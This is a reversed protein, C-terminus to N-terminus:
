EPLRFDLKVTTAVEVPQGNLLYPKYHWRLVADEAAARLHRDGDIVRVYKVMGTQTVVVDMVVAGEIGQARAADPYAPVRSTILNAAMTSAPVRLVSADIMQQGARQRISSETPDAARRADAAPTQHAEQAPPTTPTPAASNDQPTVPADSAATQSPPTQEPEPTTVPAPPASEAQQGTVSNYTNRVSEVASQLWESGVETRSGAYGGAALVAVILAPIAFRSLQSPEPDRAYASLPAKIAPDDDPDSYALGRKGLTSAPRPDFVEVPAPEPLRSAAVPAVPEQPPEPIVPVDAVPAADPVLAAVVPAEVPPPAPPEVVPAVVPKPPAAEARPSAAQSRDDEIERQPANARAEAFPSMRDWKSLAESQQSDTIRIERLAPEVANATDVAGAATSAGSMEADIQALQARLERTSQELRALADGISRRKEVAENTPAHHSAFPRSEEAQRPLLADPPQAIPQPLEAPRAVDVGALLQRLEDAGPREHAPLADPGVGAISEVVAELTQRDSLEGSGSDSYSNVLSWFDMAFHRNEHLNLLLGGLQEPAGFPISHMDFLSRLRTVAQEHQETIQEEAM